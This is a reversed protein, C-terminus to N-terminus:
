IEKWEFDIIDLYRFFGRTFEAMYNSDFPKCSYCDVSIMYPNEFEYVYCQTGSTSWSTHTFHGKGETFGVHPGYIIEMDLQEALETNFQLLESPSPLKKCTFEVICRQRYIHPAIM